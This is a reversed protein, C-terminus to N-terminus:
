RTGHSSKIALYMLEMQKMIEYRNDKAYQFATAHRDRAM